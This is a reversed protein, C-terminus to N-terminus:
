VTGTPRGGIPPACACETPLKEEAKELIANQEILYPNREMLKIILFQGVFMDSLYFEEQERTWTYLYEKVVNLKDMSVNQNMPAIFNWTTTDKEPVITLHWSKVTFDVMAHIEKILEKLDRL